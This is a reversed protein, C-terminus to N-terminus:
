EPESTKHGRPGTHRNAQALPPVKRARLAMFLPIERRAKEMVEALRGAPPRKESIWEEMHDVLLGASAMTNVYAQIPRHFSYTVEGAADGPHMDIPIKESTLYQRIVRQQAPAAPDLLWDSKRPIRFCPHVLVVALNGGPKLRSWIGQWIPTLPTMNTIALVCCAADFGEASVEAAASLKRADLILYRQDTAAGARTKAITILEAAVDIGTCDIGDEAFARCVVGQGCGVDLLRQGPKLALMRKLGPIITRVHHFHGQEGVREDYWSSSQHWGTDAGPSKHPQAKIAPKPKHM